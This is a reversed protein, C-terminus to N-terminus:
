CSTVEARRVFGENYFLEEFRFVMGGVETDECVWLECLYVADEVLCQAKCGAYYVVEGRLPDLPWGFLHAQSKGGDPVAGGLHSYFM